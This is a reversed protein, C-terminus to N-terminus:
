VGERPSPVVSHSSEAATFARPTRSARRQETASLGLQYEHVMMVTVTAMRVPAIMRIKTPRRNGTPQHPQRDQRYHPGGRDAICGGGQEPGDTAGAGSPRHAARRRCQTM